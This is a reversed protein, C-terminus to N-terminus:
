GATRELKRPPYESCLPSDISTWGAPMSSHGFPNGIWGATAAASPCGFRAARSNPAAAALRELDDESAGHVFVECYGREAISM